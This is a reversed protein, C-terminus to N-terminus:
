EEVFTDSSSQRVAEWVESWILTMKPHKSLFNSSITQSLKIMNDICRKKAGDDM